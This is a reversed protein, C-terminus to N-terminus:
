SRFIDYWKGSTSTNHKTDFEKLAKDLDGKADLWNWLKVFDEKINELEIRLVNTKDKLFLEINHYITDYYLECVEIAEPEKLKKDGLMLIGKKFSDIISGALKWRKTFSNVTDKKNRKLVVYFADNGFEKDLHGLFWSLRNDAEIHDDPYDFKHSGFIRSRSEHDSSFNEIHSCAKIFSVSGTRGSCLVFVRM